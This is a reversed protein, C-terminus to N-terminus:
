CCVVLLEYQVTFEQCLLVFVYAHYQTSQWKAIYIMGVEASERMDVSGDHDDDLHMHVKHIAEYERRIEKDAERIATQTVVCVFLYDLIFM